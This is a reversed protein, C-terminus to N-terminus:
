RWAWFNDLAISINDIELTCSGGVSCSTNSSDNLRWMFMFIFIFYTLFPLFISFVGNYSRPDTLLSFRDEDGYLCHIPLFCKCTVGTVCSDKLSLLLQQSNTLTPQQLGM